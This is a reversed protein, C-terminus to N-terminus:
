TSPRVENHLEASESRRAWWLGAMVGLMGGALVEGIAPAVRVLMSM